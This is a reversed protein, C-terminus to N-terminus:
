PRSSFVSADHALGMRLSQSSAVLALVDHRYIWIRLSFNEFLETPFLFSRPLIFHFKPSIIENKRLKM